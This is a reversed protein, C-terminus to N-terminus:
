WGGVTLRPQLRGARVLREKWACSSLTMSFRVRWNEAENWDPRCNGSALDTLVLKNSTYRFVHNSGGWYETMNVYLVRILQDRRTHMYGEHLYKDVPPRRRVNRKIAMENALDDWTGRVYAGGSKNMFVNTRSWKWALSGDPLVELARAWLRLCPTHYNLYKQYGKDKGVVDVWWHQKGYAKMIAATPTPEMAWMLIGAQLEKPLTSIRQMTTAATRQRKQAPEM